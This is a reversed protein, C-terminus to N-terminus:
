KEGATMNRSMWSMEPIGLHVPTALPCYVFDKATVVAKVGPLAEAKSPDTGRIVAHPPPRRLVKAWIMGPMTADAAYAARGTVKDSGDPRITSKGIWKNGTDSTMDNM